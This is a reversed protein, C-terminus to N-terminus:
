PAPEALLATVVAELFAYDHLGVLKLRIKGTRDFFLTTPYGEFDPVQEQLEDTGLACPYNIGNEQIFNKVKAVAEEGEVGEYNLGLMQFGKEGYKEQLKIFSPIEARCPPCWTGWIDVILVKGKYDALTHRKGDVDTVEFDFPFSEFNRLLDDVRTLQLEVSKKKWEDLKAPFDAAARVSALDEDQEITEWSDFGNEVSLGLWEMAQKIDNQQSAFRAAHYFVIGLIRETGEPMESKRNLLPLAETAARQFARHANRTRNEQAEQAGFSALLYVLNIRAQVNQPDQDLIPRVSREYQEGLVSDGFLALIEDGVQSAKGGRKDSSQNPQAGSRSSAAPPDSGQSTTSSPENESPSADATERGSNEGPGTDTRSSVAAANGSSEGRSGTGAPRWCGMAIVGILAVVLMFRDLTGSM